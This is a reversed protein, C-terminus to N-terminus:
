IQLKCEGKSILRNKLLDYFISDEFRQHKEQSVKVVISGNFGMSFNANFAARECCSNRILSASFDLIGSTLVRKYLRAFDSDLATSLITWIIAVPITSSSSSREFESETETGSAVGILGALFM